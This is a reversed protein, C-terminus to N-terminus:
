ERPIHKNITWQADIWAGDEEEVFEKAVEEMFEVLRESFFKVAADPHISRITIWVPLIYTEEKMSGDKM